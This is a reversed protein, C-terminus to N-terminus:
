HASKASAAAGAAHSKTSMTVLYREILEREGPRLHADKEMEAVTEPWAEPAKEDPLHLNHCGSCRAVYAQRGAELQAVTTGPWRQEALSVDLASAHPLTACAALGLVAVSPLAFRLMTQM